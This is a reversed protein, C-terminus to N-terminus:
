WSLNETITIEEPPVDRKKLEDQVKQLVANTVATYIRKDAIYVSKIYTFGAKYAPLDIVTVENGDNHFDRKKVTIGKIKIFGFDLHVFALIPEKNQVFTITATVSKISSEVPITIQTKGNEMFIISLDKASKAKIIERNLCFSVTNFRM